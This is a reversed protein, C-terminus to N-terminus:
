GTINLRGAPLRCVSPLARSPAVSTEKVLRVTANSPYGVSQSVGIVVVAGGVKGVSKTAGEPHKCCLSKQIHDQLAGLSALVTSPPGECVDTQKGVLPSGVPVYSFGVVVHGGEYVNAHLSGPDSLPGTVQQGSYKAGKAESGM